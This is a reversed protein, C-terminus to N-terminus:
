VKPAAPRARGGRSRGPGARARAAWRSLMNPRPRAPPRPRPRPRGPRRNATPPGNRGWRQALVPPLGPLVPGSQKHSRLERACRAVESCDDVVM